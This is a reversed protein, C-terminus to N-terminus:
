NKVEIDQFAQNVDRRAQIYKLTNQYFTNITTSESVTTDMNAINTNILEILGTIHKAPVETNRNEFYYLYENLIEVFLSASTTPDM